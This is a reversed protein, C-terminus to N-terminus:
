IALQGQRIASIFDLDARFSDGDASYTAVMIDLTLNSYFLEHRARSWQSAAACHTASM